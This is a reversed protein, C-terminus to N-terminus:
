FDKDKVYDLLTQLSDAEDKGVGFFSIVNNTAPNIICFTACTNRLDIIKAVEAESVYNMPLKINAKKFKDIDKQTVFPPISPLYHFYYYEKNNEDKKAKTFSNQFARGYPCGIDSDLDSVYLIFKKNTEYNDKLYSRSQLYEATAAPLTVVYLNNSGTLKRLEKKETMIATGNVRFRGVMTGGKIIPKDSIYVCFAIILACLITVYLKLM